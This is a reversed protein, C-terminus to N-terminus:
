FQRSVMNEESFTPAILSRGGFFATKRIKRLFIVKNEGKPSPNQPLLIWPRDTIAGVPEKKAYQAGSSLGPIKRVAQTGFIPISKEGL